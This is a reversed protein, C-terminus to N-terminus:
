RYKAEHERLARSVPIIPLLFFAILAFGFAAIGTAIDYPFPVVLWGWGAIKLAAKIATWLGGFVYACCSLIVSFGMTAIWIGPDDTLLMMIVGFVSLGTSALAIYRAITYRNEWINKITKM